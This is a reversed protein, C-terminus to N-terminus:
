ATEAETLLPVTMMIKTGRGPASEVQINAGLHYLRERISFLGYRDKASGEAELLQLDFGIGDDQVEVYVHDDSGRLTIRSNSAEAHKVTNTLLEQVARFLLVAIREPLVTGDIESDVSISIGNEKGVSEALYELAATLGLQYLVPPSLKFILSQTQEIASYLTKSVSELEPSINGAGEGHSLTDIRLKSLALHQGISDHLDEALKKREREETLVLELAMSRLQRQNDMLENELNKRETIDRVVAVAGVIDGAESKLPASSAQRYMMRGTEPHRVIEEIDKLAEGRLSRFLPADEQARPRGDPTFIELKPLWEPL